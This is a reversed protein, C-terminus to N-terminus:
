SNYISSKTVGSLHRFFRDIRHKIVKTNGKTIKRKKVLSLAKIYSWNERKM